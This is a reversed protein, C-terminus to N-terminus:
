SATQRVQISCPPPTGVLRRLRGSYGIPKQMSPPPPAISYYSLNSHVFINVCAFM